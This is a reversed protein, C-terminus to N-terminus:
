TNFLVSAISVQLAVSHVTSGRSYYEFRNQVCPQRDVIAACVDVHVSRENSGKQGSRWGGYM